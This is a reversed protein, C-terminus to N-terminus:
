PASYHSVRSVSTTQLRVQLMDSSPHAGDTGVPVVPVAGHLAGLRVSRPRRGGARSRRVGEGRDEFGRVEVLLPGHKSERELVNDAQM